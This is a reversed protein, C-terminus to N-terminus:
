SHRPCLVTGRALGYGHKTQAHGWKFRYLAATFADRDLQLCRPSTKVPVTLELREECGEHECCCTLTVMIM